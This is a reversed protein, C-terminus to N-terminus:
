FNKTLKLKIKGDKEIKKVKYGRKKAAAQVQTTAAIQKFRPEKEKWWRNEEQNIHIQYNDGVKEFGLDANYRAKTFKKFNQRRVVVNGKQRGKNGNWGVLPVPNNHIEIQNRPIGLDVLGAIISEESKIECEVVKYASM